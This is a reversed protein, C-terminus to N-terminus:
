NAAVNGSPMRIAIRDPELKSADHVRLSEKWRKEFGIAM